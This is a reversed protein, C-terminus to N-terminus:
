VDPRKKEQMCTFLLSSTAHPVSIHLPLCSKEDFGSLPQYHFTASMPTKLSHNMLHLVYSSEAKLPPLSCQTSLQNSISWICQYFLLRSVVWKYLSIRGFEELVKFCHLWLNEWPMLMREAPEALEKPKGPRISASLGFCQSFLVWQATLLRVPFM